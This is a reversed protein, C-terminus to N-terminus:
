QSRGDFPISLAVTKYPADASVDACQVGFSGDHHFRQNASYLLICPMSAAWLLIGTGFTLALEKQWGAPVGGSFLVLLLGVIYSALLYGVDFLLLVTMKAMVLRGGAVPICLLNKLTDDDHEGFFLNAALVVSLPLLLLFGNEERVVSAM